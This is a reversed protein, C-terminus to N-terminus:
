EVTIIESYQKLFSVAYKLIGKSEAHIELIQQGKDVMEGLKVNLLVGAAKDHPAGALKALRSLYRNDIKKVVGKRSACLVHIHKAKLPQRMGGQANCIAQFKNWAEGSELIHKAYLEGEGKNIDKSFELIAGAVMIARQKLDLPADDANQLVSIVDLAELSPGIGRGVPQVGDSKIVTLTLGLEHAVKYFLNELIKASARSRVKATEGVPIDIVIHTSGAAIKKSLVSAILQGESDFDMAREIRIMIDDAPSMNVAGGWVICGGEKNVVKKMQEITLDVPALVEMVDATGAPSTIARSSTKPILMGFSAIIPVVIPTVRNGPLGGICHKDVVVENDWILKDGVDVMSKTLDIIEGDTLRGGACAALFTATYIDTYREAAIDAIVSKIAESSLHHGYVKSRVHSLSPLPPPHSISIIQNEKAGLLKWARVSLSAEGNKLLDDDIINLTALIEKDSLRVLVRSPVDFGQAICISCHKPLFITHEKFTDIGLAKLKLHSCIGESM